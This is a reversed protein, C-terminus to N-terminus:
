PKKKFRSTIKPNQKRLNKALKENDENLSDGTRHGAFLASIVFLLFRDDLQQVQVCQYNLRVRTTPELGKVDGLGEVYM